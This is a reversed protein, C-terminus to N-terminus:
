HVWFPLRWTRIQMVKKQLNKKFFFNFNVWIQIFVHHEITSEGDLLYHLRSAASIIPFQHYPITQVKSTKTMTKPRWQWKVWPLRNRITGTPIYRVPLCVPVYLRGTEYQFFYQGYRDIKPLIPRYQFFNKIKKKLNQLKQIKTLASHYSIQM